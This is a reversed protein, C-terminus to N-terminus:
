GRGREHTTEKAAPPHSRYLLAFGLALIGLTLGLIWKLQGYVRPMIQEIQPGSSDPQEGAAGADPAPVAAGSFKVDYTNKQLGFIRAQTRPEQGLDKMNQGEVTVGNPVILYTNEDETPIKGSYSAGQTYPVSYTLDFRTEGPKIEFKGAYVDPKDTKETPVPVPMGDPASGKVDVNGQAGAPLFFRLTGNKPDAWTTKGTNKYLLTENVTLQGNNPEFLLMHKTVTATGPKSTANYINLDLNTTPTGPPMMKNYIVGDQEVRLMSPGQAAPAQNISFRGQADTQAKDVPEMGGGGFKYLTVTVNAAPKGTTQNTVTGTIAALAPLAALLLLLPKMGEGSEDTQRV